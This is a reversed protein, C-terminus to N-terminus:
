ENLQQELEKVRKDLDDINDINNITKKVSMSKHIKDHGFRDLLDANTKQKIGILRGDVMKHANGDKDIKVVTCDMDAIEDLNSFYKETNEAKFKDIFHKVSPYNLIKTTNTTLTKSNPYYPKLVETQNKDPNALYDRAISEAKHKNM